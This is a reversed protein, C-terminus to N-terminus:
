VHKRLPFILKFSLWVIHKLEEGVAQHDVRFGPRHALDDRFVSLSFELANRLREHFGLIDDKSLHMEIVVDAFEDEVTQGSVLERDNAFEALSPLFVPVEGVHLSVQVAPM